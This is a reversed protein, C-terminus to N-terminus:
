RDGIEFAAVIRDFNGVSTSALDNAFSGDEFRATRQMCDDFGNGALAIVVTGARKVERYLSPRWGVLEVPRASLGDFIKEVNRCSGIGDRYRIRLSTDVAVLCPECVRRGDAHV